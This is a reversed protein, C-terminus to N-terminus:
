FIHRRYFRCLRNQYARIPASHKIQNPVTQQLRNRFRPSPESNSVVIRMRESLCVPGATVLIQKGFFWKLGINDDIQRFQFSVLFGSYRRRYFIKNPDISILVIQRMVSDAARCLAAIAILASKEKLTKCFRKEIYAITSDVPGIM